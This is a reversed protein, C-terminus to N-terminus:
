GADQGAQAPLGRMSPWSSSELFNGASSSPSEPVWLGESATRDAVFRAGSLRGAMEMVTVGAGEVTQSRGDFTIEVTHSLHRLETPNWRLSRAMEFSPWRDCLAEVESM